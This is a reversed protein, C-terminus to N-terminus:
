AVPLVSRFYLYISLDVIVINLIVIFVMKVLQVEGDSALSTTSGTTGSAASGALCGPRVYSDQLYTNKALLLTKCITKKQLYYYYIVTM